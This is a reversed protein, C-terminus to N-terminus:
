LDGKRAGPGTGGPDDTQHETQALRKLLGRLATQEELSYDALFTRNAAIALASTAESAARGAPTLFIEIARRDQLHPKRQILDMAELRDLLGTMTAGTVRLRDGLRHVSVGDEDRLANLVMAQSATLGLAAVQENWYRAGALGAKALQFFICDEVNM